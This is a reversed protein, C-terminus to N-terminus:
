RKHQLSKVHSLLKNKCSDSCTRTKKYKNIRFSNGCITCLRDEDDVGSARRRASTCVRSCLEKQNADTELVNFFNGCFTCVKKIYKGQLKKKLWAAAALRSIESAREPNERRWEVARKIASAINSKSKGIREPFSSHYSSHESNPRLELNSLWNHEPNLDKHHVDHAVAIPGNHYEWVVRHLYKDGSAHDSKYYGTPPKRYYRIGLFEYITWKARSRLPTVQIPNEM